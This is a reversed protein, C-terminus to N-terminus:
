MHLAWGIAMAGPIALMWKLVERSWSPGQKRRYVRRIRRGTKSDFETKEVSELEMEEKRKRM